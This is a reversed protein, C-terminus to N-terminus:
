RHCVGPQDAARCRPPKPMLPKRAIFPASALKRGRRPTQRKVAFHAGSGLVEHHVAGAAVALRELGIVRQHLDGQHPEAALREIACWGFLRQNADLLHQRVLVVAKDGAREPEGYAMRVNDGSLEQVSAPKGSPAGVNRMNRYVRLAVPWGDTREAFLSLERRSLAGGFFRAIWPKSFRLQDVTLYVGQGDLVANAIDLGPNERGAIAICLNRPGNHILFNITDLAERSAIRDVDDLVLMCPTGHAEIAAVLFETRRAPATRCRRGTSTAKRRTPALGKM